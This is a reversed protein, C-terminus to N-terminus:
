AAATKLLLPALMSTVRAEVRDLVTAEDQAMSKARKGLDAVAQPNDLLAALSNGLATDNAVAEVADANAMADRIARFNEMHPGHLVACGFLAPEIPNHGGIPVLSGGMFVVPCLTFLTGMEGLTDTLYIGTDQQPLAGTSRQAVTLGSRQVLNAIEGGRQPHRPALITLIDSHKKALQKHAAIVAEEEGPHTSAALWITRGGIAGRMADLAAMDVPLPPAGFKLNGLSSVSQAGLAELRQGDADSQPLCEKFSSLMESATGSLYQWRSFSRDSIRANLLMAPTQRAKIAALANPWLESELWLVADPQWHDMFRAVWTPHDWPAFQHIASTPLREAMLQASTVTTTTVLLTLQPHAEALRHLLPLASLAEGVSAGHCWLLPGDPRTKDSIGRRENLRTPVEKGKAVRRRLLWNLAPASASTAGRYISLLATM